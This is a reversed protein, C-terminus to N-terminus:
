YEGVNVQWCNFGANRWTEVVKDRDDLVFWVKEKAKEIGGFHDTILKIKLEHDPSRDNNPRMLMMSIYQEMGNDIIWNATVLRLQEQRGTVIAIQYHESDDLLKMLQIIESKPKDDKIGANFQEWEGAQALHVRHSSDCLTGELDIVVWNRQYTDENM